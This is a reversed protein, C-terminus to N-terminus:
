LNLIKENIKINFYFVIMVIQYQFEFRVINFFYQTKIKSVHFILNDFRVDYVFCNNNEFILRIEDNIFQVNSMLDCNLDFVHFVNNFNISHTINNSLTTEFIMTEFDITKIVVDNAIYIDFSQNLKHYNVFDVRCFTM